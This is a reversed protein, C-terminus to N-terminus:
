RFVYHRHLPFNFCAGVLLATVAKSWTYTLGGHETMLYVLLCNLGLSGSWVLAYRLAQIRVSRDSALFSWHRNSLFATAGGALAGCATAAVYNMVGWEVLVVMLVFDVLTALGAVVQSRLYAGILSIRPALSPARWARWSLESQSADAGCLV